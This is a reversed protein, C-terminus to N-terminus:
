QLIYKVENLLSKNPSYYRLFGQLARKAEDKKGLAFKAKAFSIWAGADSKDLENAKLSWQLAKEYNKDALYLNAIQLAKQYDANQAFEQELNGVNAVYSHIIIKEKPKIIPKQPSERTASNHQKQSLIQAKQAEIQAIELRKQMKNKEDLAMKLTSQKDKYAVFAWLAFGACVCFAGVYVCRKVLRKFTHAKFDKELELIQSENM